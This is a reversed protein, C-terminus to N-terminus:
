KVPVITTVHVHILSSREWATVSPMFKCNSSGAAFPRSVLHRYTGIKPVLSLKGEIFPMTNSTLTPAPHTTGSLPLRRYAKRHYNVLHPPFSLPLKMLSVLQRISFIAFQLTTQLFQSDTSWANANKERILLWAPNKALRHSFSAYNLLSNIWANKSSM